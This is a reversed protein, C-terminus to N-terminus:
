GGFQPVAGAFVCNQATTAVALPVVGLPTGPAPGDTTSRVVVGTCEHGLVLPRVVGPHLGEYIHVDSGCLGNFRAQVLVEGPGPEPDPVEEVQVAHDNVVTAQRM